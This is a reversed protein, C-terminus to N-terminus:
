LPFVLSNKITAADCISIKERFRLQGDSERAVIDKYRGAAFCTTAQGDITEFVAFNASVAWSQGGQLALAFGSILHRVRRPITMSLNEIANVRDEIGGRSECSMLALAWGRDLNERTVIKYIADEVFLQPWQALPGEDILEAYRAYLAQIELM